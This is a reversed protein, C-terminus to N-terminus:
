RFPKVLDKPQEEDSIIEEVGDIVVVNYVGVRTPYTHHDIGIDIAMEEGFLEKELKENEERIATLKM